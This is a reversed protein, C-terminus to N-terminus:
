DCEVHVNGSVERSLRGEVCVGVVSVGIERWGGVVLPGVWLLVAVPDMAVYSSVGWSTPSRTAPCVKSSSTLSPASAFLSTFVDELSLSSWLRVGARVIPIKKSV